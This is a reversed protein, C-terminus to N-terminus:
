AHKTFAESNDAVKVLKLQYFKGSIPNQNSDILSYTPPNITPIDYVEFVEDTFTQKYGKRFPLDIKSIRVFDGIRFKPRSVLKESASANLSLLYPVDKKTVKNPAIKTVRSIRSNITQVFNKLQSIYSYTWKEELYKYIINKLSRINREAFASKKESFTQYIAINRRQCLTKFNGKFETGADVWVKKPQKHKIMRKFAEATTTAYKSKLPEVRLYRSLCDVAILLYKIGANQKSLKDVHALDLSWIEDLDYAIVKLRAFSKRFGKYKTHANKTELFQKVKRPQLKTNKQLNEVSGFAAPGKTYMSQLLKEESTTLNGNNKRRHVQNTRLKSVKRKKEDSSSEDETLLARSTQQQKQNDQKPPKQFKSRKQKQSKNVIKKRKTATEPSSKRISTKANSNIVQEEKIQLVKLLEFYDPSDIKKTPQQLNYLFTFANIDTPSNDILLKEDEGILVRNSKKILDVIYNCKLYKSHPLLSSLTKLVQDARRNSHKLRNEDDDVGSDQESLKDNFQAEIHEKPRMRNIISLEASKHKIDPNELVRTQYPQTKMYVKKPILIFEEATTM